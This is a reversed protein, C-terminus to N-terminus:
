KTAAPIVKDVLAEFRPNGRLPDLYPDVKIFNIEFGSHEHAEKELPPTLKHYRAGIQKLVAHLRQVNSGSPEVWLDIDESFTAASYLVTAQASILLYAVEHAELSQFFNAIM